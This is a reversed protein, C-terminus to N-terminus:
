FPLMPIIQTKDHWLKPLEPNKLIALLKEATELSKSKQDLYKDPLKMYESAEALFGALSLCRGRIRSLTRTFCGMDDNGCPVCFHDNTLHTKTTKEIADAFMIGNTDFETGMLREGFELAQSIAEKKPTPEGGKGFVHFVGNPNPFMPFGDFVVREAHNEEDNWGDIVSWLPWTNELIIFNNDLKERIIKWFERDRCLDVNSSHESKIKIEEHVLGLASSVFEARINNGGEMWWAMCDEETLLPLSFAMGSLGDVWAQSSGLGFRSLIYRLGVGFSDDRNGDGFIWLGEIM